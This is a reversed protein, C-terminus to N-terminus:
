LAAKITGIIAIINNLLTVVDASVGSITSVSSKVTKLTSAADGSVLGSIHDLLKNMDSSFKVVPDLNGAQEKIAILAEELATFVTKLGKTIESWIEKLGPLTKVLDRAITFDDSTVVEEINKLVKEIDQFVSSEDAM